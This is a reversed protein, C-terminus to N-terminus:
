LSAAGVTSRPRHDNPSPQTTKTEDIIPCLIAVVANGRGTDITADLELYPYLRKDDILYSPIADTITVSKISPWDIYPANDNAPGRRAIGDRIFNIVDKKSVTRYSKIRQLRPWTISIKSIKGHEGFNFGYSEVELPMGDVARSFYVRRYIINTFSIGNVLGVGGFEDFNMKHNIRGTIESFPIDLKHLVDKTLKPLESEKPVGVTLNTTWLPWDPGAQYHIEGSLFSVSLKRSGDSNQFTMGNTNQETKDKETFSCLIMLNSIVEPSFRNPLLQYTWVKRPFKNAAEWRVDLNTRAPISIGGEKWPPDQAFGATFCFVQVLFLIIRKM